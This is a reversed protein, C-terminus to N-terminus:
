IVLSWHRIWSDIIAELVTCWYPITQHSKQWESLKWHNRIFTGIDLTWNSNQPADCPKSHLKGTNYRKTRVHPITLKNCQVRDGINEGSFYHTVTWAILLTWMQLTEKLHKRVPPVTYGMPAYVPNVNKFKKGSVFPKHQPVAAPFSSFFFGGKKIIGLHMKIQVLSM